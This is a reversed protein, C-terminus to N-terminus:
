RGNAIHLPLIKAASTLSPERRVVRLTEGQEWVEAMLRNRPEARLYDVVAAM